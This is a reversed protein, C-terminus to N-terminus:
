WQKDGEDIRGGGTRLLRPVRRRRGLRGRRRVGVAGAAPLVQRSRPAVLVVPADVLHGRQLGTGGSQDPVLGVGAAGPGVCHCRGVAGHGGGGGGSGFLYTAAGNKKKVFAM